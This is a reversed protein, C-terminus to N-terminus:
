QSREERIEWRADESLILHEDGTETTLAVGDTINWTDAEFDDLDGTDGKESEELALLLLRARLRRSHSLRQSENAAQLVGWESYMFIVYYGKVRVSQALGSDVQEAYRQM